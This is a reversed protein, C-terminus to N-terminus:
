SQVFKMVQHQTKVTKTHYCVFEMAIQLVTWGLSFKEKMITVEVILIDIKLVKPLSKNFQQQLIKFFEFFDPQYEIM